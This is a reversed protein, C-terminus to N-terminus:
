RGLRAEGLWRVAVLRLWALDWRSLRGRLEWGPRSEASAGPLHHTRDALPRGFSPHAPDVPRERPRHAGPPRSRVARPVRLRVSLDVPTHVAARFEQLTTADDSISRPATAARALALRPTTPRPALLSRGQPRAVRLRSFCAGANIDPRMSTRQPNSGCSPRVRRRAHRGHSGRARARPYPRPRSLAPVRSPAALSASHSRLSTSADRSTLRRSRACSRSGHECTRSRRTARGRGGRLRRLPPHSAL